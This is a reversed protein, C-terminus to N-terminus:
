LEVVPLKTGKLLADTEASKAKFTYLSDRTRLKIKAEEGRKVVRIETAISLLKTLEEKKLIERPM